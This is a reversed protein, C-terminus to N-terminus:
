MASGVVVVFVEYILRLFSSNFLQFWFINFELQYLSTSDSHRWYFIFLRIIHIFHRNSLGGGRGPLHVGGVKRGM